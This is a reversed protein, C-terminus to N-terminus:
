AGIRKTKPQHGRLRLRYGPRPPLPPAGPQGTDLQRRCRDRPQGAVQDVILDGSKVYQPLLETYNQKTVREFYYRVGKDLIEQVRSRNDVPDIITIDTPPVDIHKLLLPLACQSVAGCGIVLVKGEFKTM